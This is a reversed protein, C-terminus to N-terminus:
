INGNSGHVMSTSRDGEVVRRGRRQGDDEGGGMTRAAATSKRGCKESSGCEGKGDCKGRGSCEESGSCEEATVITVM